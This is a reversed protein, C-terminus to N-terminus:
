RIGSDFHVVVPTSMFGDEARHRAPVRFRVSGEFFPLPAPRIGADGLLPADIRYLGRRDVSLDAYGSRNTTFHELDVWGSGRVYRQLVLDASPLLVDPCDEGLIMPGGCAPGNLAFVQIHFVQGAAAPQASTLGGTVLVVAGLCVALAGRWAWVGSNTERM